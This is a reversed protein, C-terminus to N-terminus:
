DQQFVNLGKDNLKINAMTKPQNKKETLTLSSNETRLKRIMEIMIKDFAKKTGISIIM